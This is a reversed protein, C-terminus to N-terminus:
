RSFLRAGDARSKCAAIPLCTPRLRHRNLASSAATRCTSGGLAAERCRGPRCQCRVPVSPNSPASALPRTAVPACCRNAFGMRAKCDAAPCAPIALPKSHPRNM